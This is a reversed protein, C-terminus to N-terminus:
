IADLNRDAGDSLKQVAEVNSMLPPQRSGTATGEISSNPGM